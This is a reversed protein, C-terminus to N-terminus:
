FFLYHILTQLPHIKKIKRCETVCSHVSPFKNIHDRITQYSIIGVLQEGFPSPGIACAEPSLHWRQARSCHSKGCRNRCWIMNKTSLGQKGLHKRKEKISVWYCEQTTTLLLQGEEGNEYVLTLLYGTCTCSVYMFNVIYYHWTSQVKFSHQTIYISGWVSCTYNIACSYKWSSFNFFLIANLNFDNDIAHLSLNWCELLAYCLRIQYRDQEARWM